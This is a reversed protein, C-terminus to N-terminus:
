KARRARKHSNARWLKRPYDVLDLTLSGLNITKSVDHVQEWREEGSKGVDNNEERWREFRNQEEGELKRLISGLVLVEAFTERYRRVRSLMDMDGEAMAGQDTSNGEVAKEVQGPSQDTSDKNQADQRKVRDRATKEEEGRWIAIM